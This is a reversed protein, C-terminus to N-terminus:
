IQHRPKVFVNSHNGFPVARPYFPRLLEPALFMCFNTIHLDYTMYPIKVCMTQSPQDWHIRMHTFLEYRACFNGFNFSIFKDYKIM